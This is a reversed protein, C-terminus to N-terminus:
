TGSARGALPVDALTAACALARLLADESPIGDEAEAILLLRARRCARLSLKAVVLQQQPAPRFRLVACHM